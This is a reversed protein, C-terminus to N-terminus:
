TICLPFVFVHVSSYVVQTVLFNSYTSKKGGLMQKSFSRAFIKLDNEGEM